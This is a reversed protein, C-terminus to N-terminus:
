GKTTVITSGVTKGAVAANKPTVEGSPNVAIAEVLTARVSM